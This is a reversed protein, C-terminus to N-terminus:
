LTAPREMGDWIVDTRLMWDFGAAALRRIIVPQHKFYICRITHISLYDPRLGRKM